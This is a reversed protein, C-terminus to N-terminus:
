RQTNTPEEQLEEPIENTRQRDEGVDLGGDKINSKFKMINEESQEKKKAIESEIDIDLPLLRMVSEDSLISRLKLAMDVMNQKDTPLNRKFTIQIESFDFDTSFKKNVRDIFNEFMALYEKKFQKEAQIIIQELPFFKKELASSNDAKTFGVDTVNPICAMMLILEMLTKKHNESATDNIDKILWKFDGRNENDGSVYLMKASLVANDEATRLVNTIWNGNADQVLLANEPAYGIAVLKADANQEFTTKNNDIITEFADILDEVATFICMNDPNEIALAPVLLWDVEETMSEDLKYEKKNKQTGKFYLRETETIVEVMEIDKGNNDTENWIRVLGVKQMPTSYDYLAVTQIAPTRAYVLKNDETEYQLGYCSGTIFYDKVLEYFVTDDDNYERIYDIMIQFEEKNANRGVFKNFLKKLINIKNKNTEQKVVIEPAIGGFYGSAINVIYYEMAIDITSKYQSRTYRNYRARKRSLERKAKEIITSTYAENRLYEKNVQIM